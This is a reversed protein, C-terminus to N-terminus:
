LSMWSKIMQTYSKFKQSYEKLEYNMDTELLMVLLSGNTIVILISHIIFTLDFM